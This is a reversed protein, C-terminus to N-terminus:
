RLYGARALRSASPSQLLYYTSIKLGRWYVRENRFDFDQGKM